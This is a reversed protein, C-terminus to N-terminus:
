PFNLNSDTGPIKVHNIYPNQHGCLQSLQEYYDLRAEHLDQSNKSCNLANMKIKFNSGIKTLRSFFCVTHPGGTLRVTQAALGLSHFRQWKGRGNEQWSVVVTRGRRGGKDEARGPSLLAFDVEEGLEVV